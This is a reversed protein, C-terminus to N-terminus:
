FRRIGIVRGSKPRLGKVTLMRDYFDLTVAKGKQGPRSFDRVGIFEQWPLRPALNLKDLDIHIAANKPRKGDSNNYVFLLVRDPLQWMSIQIASDKCTVASVRGAPLHKTDKRVVGFDVVAQTLGGDAWAPLNKRAQEMATPDTAGLGVFRGRHPALGAIRLTGAAPDFEPAAGV